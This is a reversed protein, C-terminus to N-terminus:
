SSIEGYYGLLKLSATDLPQARSASAFPHTCCVSSGISAGLLALLCYLRRISLVTLIVMHPMACTTMRRACPGGLRSNWCRNSLSRSFTWAESGRAGLLLSSRRLRRKWHWQLIVELLEPPLLMGNRISSGVRPTWARARGYRKLTESRHVEAVPMQIADFLAVGDHEVQSHTEM